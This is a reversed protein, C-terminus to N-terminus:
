NDLDLKTIDPKNIKFLPKGGTFWFLLAGIASLGLNVPLDWAIYSSLEPVSDPFVLEFALDILSLLLFYGVFVVAFYPVFGLERLKKGVGKAMGTM